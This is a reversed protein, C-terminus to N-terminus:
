KGLVEDLISSQFVIKIYAITFKVQYNGIIEQNILSGKKLNLILNKLDCIFM